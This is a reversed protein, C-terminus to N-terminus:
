ETSDNRIGGNQIHRILSGNAPPFPYAPLDSPSVWRIESSSKAKPSGSRLTCRFAHLHVIGFPYSHRLTHIREHIEVDIELEERFERKLCDRLPERFECKGGPFEWLGAFATGKERRAILIKGEQELIGVAVQFVFPDKEM